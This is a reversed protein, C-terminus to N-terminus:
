KKRSAAAKELALYDVKGAQTLPLSDYIIFEAPVAYGQLKQFCKQRLEELFSKEDELVNRLVLFAATVYSRNADAKQVVACEAIDLCCEAIVKQVYDCYVKYPSGMEDFTIFFRRERGDVFMWKQANMHMYTDTYFWRIGNEIHFIDEDSNTGEYYKVMLNTGAFCFRGSEGVPVPNGTKDDILKVSLGPVPRGCSGSVYKRFVSAPNLLSGGGEGVGCGNAIKGKSGHAKLFANIERETKIDLIDGGTVPYRLFSLDMDQIVPDSVFAKYFSPIGNIYCPRYMELYMSINKLTLRPSLAATKGAFMPFLTSVLFGYPYNFPVIQMLNGKPGLQMGTAKHLSLMESMINENSFVIAKPLGTTGSTYSILAPAAKGMVDLRIDKTYRAALLRELSICIDHGEDSEYQGIVIMNKIGNDRIVSLDGLGLRNRCAHSIMFTKASFHRIYFCMEETSANNNLFTAVAGIRNMAFFLVVAEVSPETCIPVIDGEGVGALVLAKAYDMSWQKLQDFALTNGHCRCLIRTANLRPRNLLFQYINRDPVTIPKQLIYSTKAKKM